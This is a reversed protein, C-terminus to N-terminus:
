RWRAALAKREDAADFPDGAITSDILAAITPDAGAAMRFEGSSQDAGQVVGRIRWSAGDRCALGQAAGDTFSRCISGAQDRFTLGIRPGAAGPASALQTDLAQGLRNSAVLYGAGNLDPAKSGGGVMTGTVIGVVLTAAIAAWQTMSPLARRESRRSRAVALDAVNGFEAAAPPNAQPQAELVPQFAARLGAQMARHREAKRQLAPDAAVKAAVAAGAEADLEGDLWAFFIEEDMIM